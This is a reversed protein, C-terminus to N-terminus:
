SGPIRERRPSAMYIRQPSFGIINNGSIAQLVPARMADVTKAQVPAGGLAGFMLTFVAFVSVTKLLAKIKDDGKALSQRAICRVVNNDAVFAHCSILNGFAM